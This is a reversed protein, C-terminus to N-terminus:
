ATLKENMDTIFRAGLAVGFSSIGSGIIVATLGGLYERTTVANAMFRSGVGSTLMGGAVLVWWWILEPEIPTSEWSEGVQNRQRFAYAIRQNEAVVQPTSVLNVFPIFWVGITWGRTYKRRKDGPLLSTTTDHVQALWVILFILGGVWVLWSLGSVIKYNNEASLADNFRGQRDTWDSYAQWYRYAMFALVGQAVAVAWLAWQTWQATTKKLPQFGVVAPKRLIPPAPPPPPPSANPHSEPPYWRGDSALWWGPGQSTDSM